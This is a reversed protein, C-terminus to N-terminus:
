IPAPDPRREEGNERSHAQRQHRARQARARGASASRRNSPSEHFPGGVEGGWDKFRGVEGIIRQLGNKFETESLEDGIEAARHSVSSVKRFSDIDDITITAIQARWPSLRLHVAPSVPNRKTPFSRLRAPSAVLGLIKRKHSHFFGIKEYATDGDQRIAKVIHNDALKKGADLVRTRPLGTTKILQSVSKARRKGTYIADFVKRRHSSRGIIKAAHAINEEANSGVDSVAQAM